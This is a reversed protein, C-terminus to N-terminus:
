GAAGPPVAVPSAKSLRLRVLAAVLGLGVVVGAGILWLTRVSIRAPLPANTINAGLGYIALDFTSDEPTRKEFRDVITENAILIKSPNSELFSTRMARKPRFRDLSDIHDSDLEWMSNAEGIVGAEHRYCYFSKASVWYTNRLKRERGNHIEGWIRTLRYADIGVDDIREARSELERLGAEPKSWLDFITRNNSLVGLGLGIREHNDELEYPKINSIADRYDTPVSTMHLLSFTTGNKTLLRYLGDSRGVIYLGAAGAQGETLGRGIRRFARDSAIYEIQERFPREGIPKSQMPKTRLEISVNRYLHDIQAPLQEKWENTVAIADVPRGPSRNVPRGIASTESAFSQPTLVVVAACILIIRMSSRSPSLYAIITLILQGDHQHASPKPLLRLEQRWKPRSHDNRM